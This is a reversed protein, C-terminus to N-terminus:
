MLFRVGSLIMHARFGEYMYFPQNLDYWQWEAYLHVRPTIPVLFKGVPQYYRSPRSGATTVLSGGFSLKPVVAGKGPLAFEAMLSGTNANDVYLSLDTAYPVLVLYSIDSRIESHTYDAIVSVRKAGAPMWQLSASEVDSRFTAQSAPDPNHNHLYNESLNLFLNWPLTVRALARLKLYDDLGTRYYTKVGDSQEYDGNLTLKQTPRFQFGALGVYRKLQGTEYPSTAGVLAADMLASGWEYRFGARLMLRKTVDVLAETQTSKQIVDLRTVAASNLPTVAGSLNYFLEGLTSAGNSHFEDTDFMERLRIRKLFRFEGSLSGSTRPMAASGYVQDFETAYFLLDPPVGAINGQALQNLNSSTHPDSYYIQGYLDAWTFPSFTAYGKTFYGDGRVYYAAWADNLSLTQGLYPTTRNGLVAGNTYLGEDDKFATAGQEFTAHFKPLEIRIGGRFTSQGWQVQNLLPYNNQTSEVLDSIGTGFQSNREYAIYPQFWFGPFLVLENSFNRVQTDYARQDLFAGTTALTPDAYSPLNNYYAINFYSGRFEYIRNRKMDLRASNYPDGIDHLQLIISDAVNNEKPPPDYKLDLNVLRFGSALNVISRYTDMDGGVNSLWRAGLDITGEFVKEQAPPAANDAAAAQAGKGTNAQADAPAAPAQAAGAAAPAAAQQDTQAQGPQTKATPDSSGQAWVMALPLILLLALPKM